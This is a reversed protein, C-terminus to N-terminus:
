ICRHMTSPDFPWSDSPVYMPVDLSSLRASPGPGPCASSVHMGSLLLFCCNCLPSASPSSPAVSIQDPPMPSMRPTVCPRIGHCPLPQDVHPNPFQLRWSPLSNCSVSIGCPPSAPHPVVPSLESPSLPLPGPSWFSSLRCGVHLPTRPAPCAPRSRHLPGSGLVDPVM